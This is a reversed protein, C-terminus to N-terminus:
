RVEKLARAEIETVGAQELRAALAKLGRHAATRVAGAQKGLVGGASSADLGMVVRLMVAEAQDQPLSAILAVARDTDIRTLADLATDDAGPWADLVEVGEDAAVPRSRARRIHDLCRNRGITAAWGRFADGDGSFSRLDRAIQLWAESAIDEAADGDAGVLVRLYRLLGPQVTRYVVAFAQEDGGKAAAFAAALADDAPTDGPSRRARRVPAM